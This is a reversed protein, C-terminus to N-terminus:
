GRARPEATSARHTRLWAHTAPTLAARAYLSLKWVAYAPALLLARYVTVPARIAALGALVHLMLGATGATALAVVPANGAAAGMLICLWGVVVAVSLPPVLQEAAADLRIIDRRALGERLVPIVDRRLVALRGAEWRINQSWSDQLTTPMDARVVAEPAFEVRVGNRVLALHLEVDEALGASGWGHRDLTSASFCMGNGKLGCSLGLASRGLPRLYHLSALAAERLSAVPSASANLVRYYSQLVLAGAELRADMRSLFDAPVESDADFIVYADYVRRWRVLDLLWRLAYGKARLVRDRREHVIAGGQRALEATADSCNDAVVFVDFRDREYRQARLSTLLRGILAEENHAPVLIAFRRRGPGAPPIAPARFAAASLVLLYIAMAAVAAAILGVFAAVIAM